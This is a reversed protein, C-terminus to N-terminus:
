LFTVILIITLVVIIQDTNLLNKWKKIQSKDLHVSMCDVYFDDNYINMWLLCNVHLLKSLYYVFISLAVNASLGCLSARVQVVHLPFSVRYNVGQNM